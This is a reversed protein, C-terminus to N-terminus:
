SHGFLCIQRTKGLDMALHSWNKLWIVNCTHGLGYQVYGTKHEHDNDLLVECYNRGIKYQQLHLSFYRPHLSVILLMLSNCPSTMFSIGLLCYFLVKAQYTTGGAKLLHQSCLKEEEVVVPIISVDPSCIMDCYWLVNILVHFVVAFWTIAFKTKKKRAGWSSCNYGYNNKIDCLLNQNM